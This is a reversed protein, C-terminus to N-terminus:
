QSFFRSYLGWERLGNISRLPGYVQVIKEIADYSNPIYNVQTRLEICDMRLPDYIMSVGEKLDFGREPTTPSNFFLFDERVTMETEHEFNLDYREMLDELPIAGNFGETRLEIKMRDMGAEKAAKVFPRGRVLFAETPNVLVTPQFYHTSGQVLTHILDKEVINQEPVLEDVGNVKKSELNIIGQPRASFRYGRKM